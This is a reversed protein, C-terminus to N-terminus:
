AALRRRRVLVITVVIAGAILIAVAVWILWSLDTTDGTNDIAEVTDGTKTLAACRTVPITFSVPDFATGAEYNPFATYGESTIQSPIGTATITGDETVELDGGALDLKVFPVAAAVVPTDTKGAMADEMTVGTIDLLLYATNKDVFRLQPNAITTDLLGDHGTFRITGTFGVLGTHTAPEYAGAGDAWGFEPTEYAAGDSVTWEGHAIAGDIYARFSEKFGWTLSADDVACGELERAQGITLVIGRNVSGQFTLTHKGPELGAPILGTWIARGNADATLQMELVTPESYVVVKIDTENPQFGEAWVTLESGAHLDALKDPDGEIGETAPPTAPPTWDSERFAAITGGGGSSSSNAGITFSVPDMATGASYFQSSGYSFVNAGASSLSVPAGSYAVGGTVDRKSAATLNVTGIAIRSGNVSVLLTGSAASDIRVSPNAITLDLIGAHGTFRVGGRYDGIGLGTAVDFSQGSQAFRFAGASTSAGGSLSITGKATASVIYNRFSAKVGWILSGEETAQINAPAAPNAPPTPRDIPGEPVEQGVFYIPTFTELNGDAQGHAGITFVGCEVSGDLCNVSKGSSGTFVSEVALGNVTFGGTGDFLANASGATTGGPWAVFRQNDQGAVYDYGGGTLTGGASPATYLYGFLIYVGSTNTNKVFGRGTVSVVASGDAALEVGPKVATFAGTSNPLGTVTGDSGITPRKVTLTAVTSYVTGQDNVAKARLQGSKRADPITLTGGDITYGDGTVEVWTDDLYHEWGITPEPTGSAIAQFTAATGPEVTASLPHRTFVPASLVTVTAPNTAIAGAANRFVARYQTAPDAAAVEVKLAPQTQGPLDTFRLAATSKAQWQITPEPTGTAAATFEVEQTSGDVTSDTPHTLITPSIGVSVFRAFGDAVGDAVAREQGDSSLAYIAHDPGAALIETARNLFNSYTRSVQKGDRISVLVRDFVSSGWLTGDEPDVSFTAARPADNLVIPDGIPSVEGTDALQLQLVATPDSAGGTNRILYIQGQPGTLVRTYGSGVPGAYDTGPLETVTAAGDAITIRRALLDIPQATGTGDDSGTSTLILSGDSAFASLSNGTLYWSGWNAPPDPLTFRETTFSLDQQPTYTYLYWVDDVQAVQVARGHVPDWLLSYTGGEPTFGPIAHVSYSEADADWQVYSDITAGMETAFFARGGAEDIFAPNAQSLGEPWFPFPQPQGLWRLETLSYARFDVTGDTNNYTLSHFIGAAEDVWWTLPGETSIGWQDNEDLEMAVTGPATWSEELQPAGGDGVYSITIPELVTGKPYLIGPDTGVTAVEAWTTRGDAVTPAVGAITLSAVPIRGYDVIKWTTPSRSTMEGTLEAGDATITVVINALTVDLIHIDTPGTYGAPPFADGLADKEDPYYHSEWHIAGATKVTTEGSAPDYSGATIPFQYPGGGRKGTDEQTVGDTLTGSGAYARWSAKVGWSVTGEAIVTPTATEAAAAPVVSAATVGTAVLVGTTAMIGVLLFSLLRAPRSSRPNMPHPERTPDPLFCSPLQFRHTHHTGHTSPM